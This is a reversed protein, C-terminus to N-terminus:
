YFLHWRKRIAWIAVAVLMVPILLMNIFLLTYQMKQVDKRLSRQVKRLNKRLEIVQQQQQEILEQQEPTIVMSAELGADGTMLAELEAQSQKLEETITEEQRRFQFEAQKQLEQVRSFPRTAIGRSRLETLATNGALSELLNLVFAGNNATPVVLQQGMFNGVQVWMDDTLIDADAVVIITAKKNQIRAAILYDEPTAKFAQILAEPRPVPQLLETPLLMSNKSSTILPTISATEDVTIAGVTAMGIEKLQALSPEKPNLAQGSFLPWALYTSQRQYVDERVSVRRAYDYDAVFQKSITIGYQKLIDDFTIDTKEPKNESGAAYEFLPDDFVIMKGGKELFAQIAELAKQPLTDPQVVLLTDIDKPIAQVNIKLDDVVFFQQLQEYIVWPPQQGTPSYGFTGAMNVTSIMGIVPKGTDVLDSVFKTLDYELYAEREIAFFPIINQEGTSNRGVLGFYVPDSDASIKASKLGAELAADEAASFPEPNIVHFRINGQNQYQKLLSEIREALAGYQPVFQSIATSYYLTLDIPEKAQALITKSGESLTYLNDETADIKFSPLLAKGLLSAVALLVLGIVIVPLVRKM